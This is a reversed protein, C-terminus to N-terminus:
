EQNKDRTADHLEKTRDDIWKIQDAYYGFMNNNNFQERYSKLQKATFTDRFELWFKNWTDHDVRMVGGNDSGLKGNVGGNTAGNEGGNTKKEAAVKVSELVKPHIEAMNVAEHKRNHHQKEVEEYKRDLYLAIWGIIIEGDLRGYLKGFAGSRAMKLALVVDDVNEGGYDDIITSATMTIQNNDMNAQVNFFQCTNTILRVLLQM